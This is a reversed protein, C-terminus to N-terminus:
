RGSSRCSSTSRTARSGSSTSGSRRSRGAAAAAAAAFMLPLGLVPVDFPCVRGPSSWSRLLRRLAGAVQAALEHRGAGRAARGPGQGPRRAQVQGGLIFITLLALSSAPCSSRCSSASTPCTSARGGDAHGLPQRAPRRREARRHRLHHGRGQAAPIGMTGLVTAAMGGMILM